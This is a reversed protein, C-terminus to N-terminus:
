RKPKVDLDVVVDAMARSPKKRTLRGGPTLYYTEPGKPRGSKAVVSKRKSACGTPASGRAARENGRATPASWRAARVASREEAFVGIAGVLRWAGKVVGWAAALVLGTILAGLVVNWYHVVAWAAACWFAIKIL